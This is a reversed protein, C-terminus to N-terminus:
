FVQELDYKRILKRCYIRLTRQRDFNKREEYTYLQKLKYRYFQEFNDHMVCPKKNQLDQCCIKCMNNECYQSALNCCEKQYNHCPHVGHLKPNDDVAYYLDLLKQKYVDVVNLLGEYNTRMGLNELLSYIQPPSLYEVSKPTYPLFVIATLTEEEDSLHNYFVM